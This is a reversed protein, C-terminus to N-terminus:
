DILKTRMQQPRGPPIPRPGAVGAFASTRYDHPWEDVRHKNSNKHGFNRGCEHDHAQQQNGCARCKGLRGMRMMAVMMMVMVLVVPFM